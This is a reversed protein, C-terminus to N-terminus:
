QKRFDLDGDLHVFNFMEHVRSAIREGYVEEIMEPPLNTTAHTLWKGECRANLIQEMVSIDNGYLKFQADEFGLDDFCYMGTFYQELPELNGAKSVDVLIRKCNAMRYNKWKTSQTFIAFLQMLLTKGRGFDGYLYIGKNVNLEEQKHSLFYEILKPILERNFINFQFEQGTSEKWKKIIMWFLRRGERYPVDLETHMQTHFVRVASKLALTTDSVPTDPDEPMDKFLRDFYEKVSKDAIKRDAIMQERRAKEKGHDITPITDTVGDHYGAPARVFFFEDCNDCDIRHLGDTLTVSSYEKHCYPCEYDYGESPKTITESSESKM